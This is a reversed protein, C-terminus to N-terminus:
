RRTAEDARGQQYAADRSMEDAEEHIEDGANKVENGIRDGAGALKDGLSEDGDVKRLAEKADAETDRITEKVDSMERGGEIAASAANSKFRSVSPQEIGRALGRKLQLGIEDGLGVDLLLYRWSWRLL